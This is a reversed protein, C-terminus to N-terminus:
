MNFKLGREWKNWSKKTERSGWENQKENSRYRRKLRDTRRNAWKWSKTERNTHEGEREKERQKDIENETKSM